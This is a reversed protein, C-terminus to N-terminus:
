SKTFDWDSNRIRENNFFVEVSLMVHILGGISCCLYGIALHIDTANHMTALRHWIPRSYTYFDFLFTPSLM